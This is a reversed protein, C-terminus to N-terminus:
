WVNELRYGDARLREILGEKGPLHLAGVAIFAGGAQLLPKLRQAMIANRGLLLAALFDEQAKRERPTIGTLDQTLAIIDSPRGARYLALLSVYVDDNLAPHRAAGLLLQAATETKIAAIANAQEDITELGVVKLGADKGSQAIVTDVDPLEQQQREVECAPLSLVAALFWLRLHHALEVSFKHSTVFGEALAIEAPGHLAAFTDHEKDIARMFLAAAMEGKGYADFPGGLETAVSKATAINLAAKRALAIAGDDTSHVTGFLYSSALGARDIRWLLGQGNLMAKAQTQKPLPDVLLNGKCEAFAPTAVGCAALVLILKRLKTM